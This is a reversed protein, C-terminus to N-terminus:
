DSQILPLFIDIPYYEFAAQLMEYAGVGGPRYDVFVVPHLNDWNVGSLNATDIAFSMTSLNPLNYIAKSGVSRVVRSTLHVGPIPAQKEYIVGYVTAVNSASLTVGSLNTVEVDFHFKDGIRQVQASLTAKPPLALSNDIMSRNIASFSASYGNLTYRGSDTM